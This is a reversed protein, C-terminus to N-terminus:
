YLSLFLLTLWKWSAPLPLVRVSPYRLPVGMDQTLVYSDPVDPMYLKQLESLPIDYNLTGPVTVMRRRDSLQSAIVSASPLV